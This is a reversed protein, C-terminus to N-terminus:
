DYSEEVSEGEFTGVMMIEKIVAKGHFGDANSSFWDASELYFVKGILKFSEGATSSIADWVARDGTEITIITPHKVRYDRTFKPLWPKRLSM